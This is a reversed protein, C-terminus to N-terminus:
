KNQQGEVDKDRYMSLERPELDGLELIQTKKTTGFCQFAMDRNSTGSKPVCRCPLTMTSVPINHETGLHVMKKLILLVLVSRTAISGERKLGRM